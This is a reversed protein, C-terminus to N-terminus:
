RKRRKQRRHYEAGFALPKPNSYPRCVRCRVRDHAMLRHAVQTYVKGVQQMAKNLARMQTQVHQGIVQFAIRMKKYDVTAPPPEPRWRMADPSTNWDHLAHDINDLVSDSTTM